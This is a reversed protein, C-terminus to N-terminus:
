RDLEALFDVLVKRNPQVGLAQQIQERAATVDGRDRLLRALRLRVEAYLPDLELIQHYVREADAQRGAAEYATALDASLEVDTPVVAHCRELATLDQVPVDAMTLCEALASEQATVPLRLPLVLWLTVLVAAAALVQTLETRRLPTLRLWAM